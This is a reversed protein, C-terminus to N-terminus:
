PATAIAYILRELAQLDRLDLVEVPSHSYRGPWSLSVHLAGYRVFDSGDTGGNTAGVQMPISQARAISLIRDVEDPPAVASNDLGRIVAGRGLPAHAFRTSEVPSDSSVFTDISYVRNVLPGYHKALAIAGELGIEERVSWAFIVKRKLLAPQIRRVALVLATSGARDDLARATFRTNGLRTAHKDATVSLGSTVGLQKLAAGDVGFWATLAEPQKSIATERPVFVGHLPAAGARDFHLLAPQGEWLSAFLGGRTRLSVTGDDAINIVEFGVEDQHAIFMLPDRDPGLELILNGENDTRTLPRAWAPLAAVIAERVPREHGSVAPVDALSKLVQTTTPTARQPWGQSQSVYPRGRLAVGVVVWSPNEVDAVKAIAHLFKDADSLSVSEVLTGAFRVRPSLVTISTLGTSDPLYAPKEVLRQGIADSGGAISDVLTVGDVRGLSRLAAEFGDHGFSRLTTLLFLTEGNKVERQAASAVAACGVRLGAQQGAVFEGYSWGDFDRVVPNLMEVGLRQVEAKSGVGVDVWLDDLTAVPANAVRGRQLHTSKVIVVGPVFGARTLERIRQGEHFQVWLSHQRGAGVERLRLYGDDTIETVAFGPRDLACAVVRKPSGSGKRLVLNGLADRKWGPMARMISDTALQEWGPPADLAIWSRLADDQAVVSCAFVIM